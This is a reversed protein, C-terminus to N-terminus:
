VYGIWRVRNACVIAVPGTAPVECLSSSRRHFV